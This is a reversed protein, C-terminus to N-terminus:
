SFLNSILTATNTDTSLAGDKSEISPSKAYFDEDTYKTVTNAEGGNEGFKLTPAILRIENIRAGAKGAQYRQKIKEFTTLGYAIQVKEAESLDELTIEEQEEGKALECRWQTEYYTDAPINFYEKYLDLVIAKTADDMPKGNSSAIESLRDMDIVLNTLPVFETAKADKNWTTTYGGIDVKNDTSYRSDDWASNNFVFSLTAEAKNVDKEGALRIKRPSFKVTTKKNGQKDEFRNIQINGFVCIRMDKKLSNKLVEVVDYESLFTDAKDEESETLTVKLKKFDMVSNVITSDFRDKWAIELKNKDKDMAYVINDKNIFYGGMLELFITNSSSTKVGFQVKHYKYGKENTDGSYFKDAKDSVVANGILTCTGYLSTIKEVM